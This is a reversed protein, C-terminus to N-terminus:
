FILVLLVGFTFFFAFSFVNRFSAVALCRSVIVVTVVSVVAKLFVVEEQSGLELLKVVKDFVVVVLLVIACSLWFVLCDTFIVLFFQILLESVTSHRFALLEEDKVHHDM